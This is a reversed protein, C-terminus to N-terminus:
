RPATWHRLLTLLFHEFAAGENLNVELLGVAHELATISATLAQIPFEAERSSRYLENAAERTWQEIETLLRKRLEKYHSAELALLHEKTIGSPPLDQEWTEKSLRKLYTEFQAALGYLSFFVTAREEPTSPTAYVRKLWARFRKGWAQWGPDSLPESRCPIRYKLCRSLLTAPLEYPRTTLLCIVTDAPPEELTKLFANAASLNMRDAEYILAFKYPSHHPSRQIKRMLERTDEVRIQQMKNAPRLTLLDPHKTLGECPTDLLQTAFWLSSRELEKLNEGHLLFAHALRGSAVATKLPRFWPNRDATFDDRSPTGLKEPSLM